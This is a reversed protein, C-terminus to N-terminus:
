DDTACQCLRVLSPHLISATANFLQICVATYRFVVKVHVVSNATSIILAVDSIISM